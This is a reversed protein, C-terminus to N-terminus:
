KETNKNKEKDSKRKGLFYAIFAVAVLLILASFIYIWRYDRELGVAGSNIERVEDAITFEEDWNWEQGGYRVTMKLRYTGAKMETNGWDIIFDGTSLPAMESSELSLGHLPTDTGSRYVKADVTMDKVILPAANRLTIAISTKYNILKPIFSILEFDPTVTNENETIKLGIVYTVINELTVGETAQLNNKSREETVVIGGLVTGDFEEEPMKIEIDVTASGSAPVTIVDQKLSAVDQIAVKLSEDRVDPESYVILGNRGTSAPNLQIRVAMDESRSNDIVVQITQRAGPEIRLDFYTQRKDVQNDPIIARVSFGNTEACVNMDPWLALLFSILIVATKSVWRFNKTIM